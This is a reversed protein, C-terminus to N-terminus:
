LPTRFKPCRGPRELRYFLLVAPDSRSRRFKDPARLTDQVEIERGQMVPYKAVIWEWYTRTVRVIFGIPTPVEFFIDEAM